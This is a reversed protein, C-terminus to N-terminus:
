VAWERLPRGALWDRRGGREAGCRGQSCAEWSSCEVLSCCPAVSSLIVAKDGAVASVKDQPETFYTCWSYFDYTLKWPETSFLFFSLSDGTYIRYYARHGMGKALRMTLAQQVHSDLMVSERKLGFHILWLHHPSRWSGQTPFKQSPCDLDKAEKWLSMDM